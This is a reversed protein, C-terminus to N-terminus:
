LCVFVDCVSLGVIYCALEFAAGVVYFCVSACVCGDDVLCNVVYVGKKDDFNKAMDSGDQPGMDRDEPRLKAWELECNVYVKKGM